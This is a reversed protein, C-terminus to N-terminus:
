RRKEILQRPEARDCAQAVRAGDARHSALPIAVRETGVKAAEAQLTAEGEALQRRFTGGGRLAEAEAGVGGLVVLDDGVFGSPETGVRAGGTHDSGRQTDGHTLELRRRALIAATREPM